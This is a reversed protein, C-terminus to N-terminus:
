DEDNDLGVALGVALWLGGGLGEVVGVLAAPRAEEVGAGGGVVGLGEGGVVGTREEVIGAGGARAELSLLQPLLRTLFRSLLSLKVRQWQLLQSAM